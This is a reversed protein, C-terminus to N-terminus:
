SAHEEVKISYLYPNLALTNALIFANEHSEFELEFNRTEGTSNGYCSQSPTNVTYQPVHYPLFTSWCVRWKM